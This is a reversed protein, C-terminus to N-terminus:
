VLHMNSFRPQKSKRERTVGRIFHFSRMLSADGNYVTKKNTKVYVLISIVFYQKRTLDTPWISLARRINESPAFLHFDHTVTGRSRLYTFSLFQVAHFTYTSDITQWTCILTNSTVNYWTFIFQLKSFGHCILFHLNHYMIVIDCNTYSYISWRNYHYSKIIIFINKM